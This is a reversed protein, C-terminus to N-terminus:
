AAAGVYIDTDRLVRRLAVFAAQAVDQGRQHLAPSLAVVCEDAGLRLERLWARAPLPHGLEREVAAQLERMLRQVRVPDGDIRPEAQAEPLAPRAAQIPIFKTPVAAHHALPRAAPKISTL